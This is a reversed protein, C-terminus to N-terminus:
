AMETVVVRLLGRELKVETDAENRFMVLVRSPQAVRASVSVLADGLSSLTATVVDTPQADHVVVNATTVANPKLTPLQLETSNTRLARLTSHFSSEQGSGWRLSGSTEIALRSYLEGSEGLLIGHGVSSGAKGIYNSVDSVNGNSHTRGGAATLKANGVATDNATGVITFGGGSRSVWAGVPRNDADLVDAAGTLQSDFVTVSDVTGDWRPDLIPPEPFHSPLCSSRNM